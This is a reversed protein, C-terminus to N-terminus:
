RLGYVRAATDHFLKAKDAASCATTIRKFSNWLVGYSSSVKDVPFNSEFMARDPGFLEIATEIYPRTADAMEQSTPPISREHWGFGCYEMGLGGLKIVVNPCKAMEALSARWLGFIEDRRNAYAGIGAVGGCHNLVVTMGPFARALDTCEALQPFRATMDFVLGRKAVEATGERYKGDVYMGAKAARGIRPDPDWAGSCRIGRFRDPAAAMLADLVAGVRSGAALDAFGVIGAAVRTRGYLGSAAMAAIGNAFEVEGVYKMEDPGDARFMALHEIFVTSVINHGSDADRLIEDLMYRREVRGDRRDWLHHHADCIPLDPEIAAERVQALWDANSTM